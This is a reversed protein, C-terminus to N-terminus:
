KMESCERDTEVQYLYIYTNMEKKKCLIAFHLQKVKISRSPIFNNAGMTAM